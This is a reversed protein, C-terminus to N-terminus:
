KRFMPHKPDGRSLLYALLDLVEDDNLEKLLGEPMLSKASATIEDVDSKKLEVAKTSDEPDTVITLAEKTESVIRGTITKGKKTTVVSARYQDAVVKSPDVISESLDKLNFRGAVQTLDPGTAGGDGNFRHCVVCRAAAYMKEGNKFDRDKLKPEAFKVLEDLKWERGPGKPKPLAKPKFPKRLGLAEIALREADTANDFADKEMNNLFGQYSAGGSKQRADAVWQFYFKRQDMTWGDRLNRLVFAYHFKQLDPYNALMKAIVGGYGPNRALLEAIDEASPPKSEQKMLEITKAIVTPSKLYVLVNCLERNLPDSKAPYFADLKKTVRAAADKDPEGMRIFTLGYVRLLELQQAEALKAFDLRGLAELLKPQLAKDGQRALAVAGTILTPADKEALVREQWLAPKQHELAVRAAYRIFRDEHGLHPYIFDVAKAPEAAASQYEELRRRLAREEAGAKNHYDVKATSEKGVYVVRFLESQAGRGGTIFYLAGDPGVAADTLPLPTRSLFEEKVAKYTSGQPEMHVAYITGFTWDCCFLAKQYRAPFKAGYGFEVGVPSGPGINLLPPLSDPYYTPWKGTGSRWGFESGSTAHCVRTPRYWPAGMDWEMDADYTFMEGDANFAFDYVNRYGSTFMEWKKGEPDTRAVWGGPALIGRAHGNADWQRPLLQDEGWNTPLRSADLKEPPLTHNGCVLFISKGDPSLRLAHPGHEGGGRISALKVAEDFHDDGKSARVRYLGSGPGGNVSVYLSDFAYLLGQAATIKVDLHEVKTPDKSGIPPPTVRCLGKREQDSVILRGKNDFTLSVWSGLEERPVTFLKDVQFDPLVNFVGAPTFRDSSPASAFVDGWPADGLRAIKRAAVWKDADKKEAAEWTEDTVVYRIENKPMTLALKLVFGAAGGDNIVEAILVNDKPKLRRQVDVEVPEKWEDSRAVEEGNIWIRLRNDCTAKLRAATSGAPIEKRLFYRRDIDAGWIWLPTPGERFLKDSPSEKPARDAPKGRVQAPAVAPEQQYIKDDAARLGCVHLSTLVACVLGLPLPRRLRTCM